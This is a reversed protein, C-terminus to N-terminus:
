ARAHEYFRVLEGVTVPLAVEDATPLMASIPFGAADASTCQDGRLTEPYAKKLDWVFFAEAAIDNGKDFRLKLCAFFFHSFLSDNPVRFHM